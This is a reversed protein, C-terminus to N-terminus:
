PSSSAYCEMLKKFSQYFRKRNNREEFDFKDNSNNKLYLIYDDILRNLKEENM